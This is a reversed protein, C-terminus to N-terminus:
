NEDYKYKRTRNLHVTGTDLHLVSYGILDLVRNEGWFWGIM